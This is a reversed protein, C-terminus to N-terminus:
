ITLLGAKIGDMELKMAKDNADSRRTLEDLAEKVEKIISDKLADAEKKKYAESWAKIRKHFVGIGAVILGLLVQIWYKLIFELIDM